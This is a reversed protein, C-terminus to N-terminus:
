EITVNLFTMQGTREVQIAIVDGKKLARAAAALDEASRVETQDIRHIVDGHRLGAEQAPTGPAVERVLAGSKITLKMSDAMEPTVTQVTVGLRTDGSSQNNNEEPSEARANVDAPREVVEVTVSVPQQNRIFDIKVSKGVPTAAVAETLDRPAKVEKGDFSTIVDGSQLGARAAPSEAGAVNQVLVGVGPELRFMRASPANLPIVVVGLYGRTVKGSAALKEFIERVLNSSISFGIGVNGVGGPSVIWSNVGIVQGQMNVLPGGSNGPNISADTQIFKAYQQEGGFERGIASVIGATLTQALGFPSGIALVWDGQQVADSDGLVAVPLNNSKIKILAIDTGPDTGILEAKFTRGDALNVEISDATGVVHNNTLIYGDSTVIFGSGQGDRRRPGDPTDPEILSPLRRPGQVREVVSINVVAPKVSRAIDRFSNSLEVPSAANVAAEKHAPPLVPIARRGRDNAASLIAVTILGLTIVATIAIWANTRWWAPKKQSPPTIQSEPIDFDQM